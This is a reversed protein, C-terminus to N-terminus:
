PIAAGIATYLTAVRSGLLALDCYSGISYFAFRGSAAFALTNSGSNRGYVYWNDTAPTQSARTVTATYRLGDLQNTNCYRVTTSDSRGTAFFGSAAMGANSPMNDGAANRARAFLVNTNNQMGSAGTGSGGHGALAQASGPTTSAFVAVHYDNQGDANGARGSNLFKTANSSGSSLGTKRNYDGSVFNNNTPATGVLPTLAGSLTRAGILVCSSKIASWIADAKCGLVFQNILQAVYPELQQQDAAEVAKLYTGADSDWSRRVSVLTALKM